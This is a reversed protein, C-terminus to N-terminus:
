IGFIHYEFVWIKKENFISKILYIKTKLGFNKNEELPIRVIHRELVEM